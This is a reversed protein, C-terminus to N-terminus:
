FHTFFRNERPRRHFRMSVKSMRGVSRARREILAIMDSAIRPRSYRRKSRRRWLGSENSRKAVTQSCTEFRM